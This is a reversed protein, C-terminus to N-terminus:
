IYPDSGSAYGYQVLDRGRGVGFSGFGPYGELFFLLSVLRKSILDWRSM